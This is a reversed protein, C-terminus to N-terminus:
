KAKISKHKHCHEGCRFHFYFIPSSSYWCVVHHIFFSLFYAQFTSANSSLRVRVGHAGCDLVAFFSSLHSIHAQLLCYCDLAFFVTTKIRPWIPDRFLVNNPTRLTHIQNNLDWGTPVTDAQKVESNCIAESLPLVNSRCNTASSRPLGQKDEIMMYVSVIGVALTLLLFCCFAIAIMETSVNASTEPSPTELLTSDPMVDKVQILVAGSELWAGADDYSDRVRCRYYGLQQLRFKVLILTRRRDTLAYDHSDDDLTESPLLSDNLLWAVLPFSGRSVHCTLRAAALLSHATYLYEVEVHVDGGVPVPCVLLSLHLRSILSVLRYSMTLANGERSHRMGVELTLPESKLEQVENKVWCRAVGVDLRPVVTVNFWASLSEAALVSAVAKDDVALSFNIPPTGRSSWCTVNGRYSGGDKFVSLSIKPKSLYVKVAMKVESSSSVRQVDRVRSWATCYYYGAHEPTVREMVLKNGTRTAPTVETRNHFWTYSLHSGRAADCSLVMRSGEYVVPPFPDSTVRTNSDPTVVSLRISNSAGTSGETDAECHYLGESMVTVKLSFTAPQAAQLHTSTDILLGDRMLKYTVPQLCEPAVCQLFARSGLYAM